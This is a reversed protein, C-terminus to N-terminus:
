NGSVGCVGLWVLIVLETIVTNIAAATAGYHPIFLMNLTTNLLLGVGYIKVLTWSRELTIVLWM